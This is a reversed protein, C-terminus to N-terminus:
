NPLDKIMTFLPTGYLDHPGDATRQFGYREYLRIAQNLFPTTSLTLRKHGQALAFDETTTLLLAGLGLGRAQPSVAMGRIYLDEGRAVVSVTGLLADDKTAVWIPGENMRQLLQDSAPTTAVFGEDTYSSRYEVFSDYILSALSPLDDPTALRVEIM